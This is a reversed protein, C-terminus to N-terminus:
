LHLNTFTSNLSLSFGGLRQTPILLKLSTTKSIKKAVLQVSLQTSYSEKPYTGILWYRKLATGSISEGRYAGGTQAENTFYSTIKREDQIGSMEDTSVLHIKRTFLELAQQHLQCIYAVQQRFPIHDDPNANLRQVTVILSYLLKM